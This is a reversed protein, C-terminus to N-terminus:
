GLGAIGQATLASDGAGVDFYYPVFWAKQAGFAFRGRLGVVADWNALDVKVDGTREPLPISGVNGTVDWKLTQVVDLYRAGAVVDLSLGSRDVARYYGTLTWIWSDLDFNVNATADAPIPKGGISGQRFNTKSNGVGMYILDTLVGWRGKRVDVTGMATFELNDLIDEIGVEFEGGGSQTFVTQGAINPFWGYIGVGFQWPDAEREPEQALAGNASVLIVVLVFISRSTVTFTRRM